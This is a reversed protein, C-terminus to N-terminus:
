QRSLTSTRRLPDVAVAENNSHFESKIGQIIGTVPAFFLRPSNRAIEVLAQTTTKM